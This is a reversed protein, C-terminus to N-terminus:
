WNQLSISVNSNGIQNVLSTNDNRKMLQQSFNTHGVQVLAATNGEAVFSGGGNLMTQWADNYTGEQYVTGANGIDSIGGPFGLGELYQYSENVNGVQTATFHSNDVGFGFGKGLDQRAINELGYQRIWGFTGNVGYEFIYGKNSNGIQTVEGYTKNHTQFLIADNTHGVQTVFGDHGDNIQDVDSRNYTGEQYVDAFEASGGYGNNDQYVNSTNVNGIQDVYAANGDFSTGSGVFQQLVVSNNELGYQNVVDTHQAFGASVFLLAIIIAFKKM